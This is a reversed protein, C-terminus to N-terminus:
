IWFSIYKGNSSCLNGNASGQNFRFSSSRITFSYFSVFSPNPLHCCPCSIFFFDMNIIPLKIFPEAIVQHTIIQDQQLSGDSPSFMSKEYTKRFMMRLKGYLHQFFTMCCFLKLRKRFLISLNKDNCIQIFNQRLFTVPLVQPFPDSLFAM